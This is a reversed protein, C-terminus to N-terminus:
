LSLSYFLAIDQNPLYQDNFGSFVFGQSKAFEIAPYNVTPVEFIIRQLDNETAWLRAVNILRAGLSQQRYDRDIVIDQLYAFGYAPEVRMSVFGLMTRSTSEELVIFCHKNEIAYEIRHKTTQHTADLARPLRQKRLTIQTEDTNERITIQWVHETHFNSDLALCKDIDTKRGDRIVLKSQESMPM